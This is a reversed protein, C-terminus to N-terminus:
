LSEVQHAREFDIFFVGINSILLWSLVGVCEVLGDGFTAGSTAADGRQHSAGLHDAFGILM